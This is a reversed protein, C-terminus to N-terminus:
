DRASSDRWVDGDEDEDDIRFLDVKPPPEDSTAAPKLVENDGFRVKKGEGSSQHLNGTKWVSSGGGGIDVEEDDEGDDDEEYLGQDLPEYLREIERRTRYRREAHYSFFLGVGSGLFNAIVDGWQFTKYQLSM